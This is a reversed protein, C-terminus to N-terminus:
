REAMQAAREALATDIATRDYWHGNIMVGLPKRLVSLDDVPNSPLLVLDARAGEAIVGSKGAEGLFDAAGTTALELIERNTYGIKSFAEIEDHISWGPTVFPNPGDTGILLTVGADRAARAFAIKNEMQAEFFARREDYSEVSSRWYRSWSPLYAAEPRAFYADADASAVRGYILAFTPVLATGAAATEEALASFKSPDANAWLEAESAAASVSENEALMAAAYGDMHEISDVGISLVDRVTMADPVHCYIALGAAKAAEAASRFSAPTLRSYLKM